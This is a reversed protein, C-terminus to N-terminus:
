PSPDRQSSIERLHKELRYALVAVLAKLDYGGDRQLIAPLEESIFGIEYVDSGVRKFKKPRPLSIELEEDSLDTVERKGDKTSAITINATKIDALYNEPDGLTLTNPSEANIMTPALKIGSIKVGDGTKEFITELSAIRTRLGQNEIRLRQIEEEYARLRAKVREATEVPLGTEGDIYRM